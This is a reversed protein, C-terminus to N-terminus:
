SKEPVGALEELLTIVGSHDLGGKGKVRMANFLEQVVATCPLPVGLARSSEMILGLDKFHLDIKFGPKYSGSVYNPTKQELCKSGALGGGLAKLTLERDLGAKRALTLAEGLATLNVAVIIQNALKTFGGAGLPGLHTITKGLAQFIPLAADFDAKEGGVMISLAADIAGKEGGSVPADLMRVGKAALAKGVKQSVLPSITSMDAFLQGRKVGEILGDKGLAVLEVDPSNPLMTIIVDSQAAVDKPSSASKAGAGVLEQVPGQSRSHVVLPYGAKLLNKAMPRGMIGLGIFGVVQAM